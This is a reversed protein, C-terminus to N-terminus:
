ESKDPRFDEYTPLKEGPRYPEQLMLGEGESPRFPEQIVPADPIKSAGGIGGFGYPAVGFGELIPWHLSRSRLDNAAGESLPVIEGPRQLVDLAWERLPDVGQADDDPKESLIGVAISAMQAATDRRSNQSNIKITAAGIALPILIAGVFKGLIEVKDWCDKGM